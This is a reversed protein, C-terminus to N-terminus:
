WVQTANLREQRTVRDKRSGLRRRPNCCSACSCSALHDARKKWNLVWSDPPGGRLWTAHRAGIRLAYRRMRAAHHRRWGRGQHRRM